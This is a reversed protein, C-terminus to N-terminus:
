DYFIWRVARCFANRISPRVLGEILTPITVFCFFAINFRTCAVRYAVRDARRDTPGDPVSSIKASFSDLGCWHGQGGTRSQHQRTCPRTRHLYTLQLCHSVKWEIAWAQIWWWCEFPRFFSRFFFRKQDCHYIAQFSARWVSWTFFYHSIAETLGKLTM